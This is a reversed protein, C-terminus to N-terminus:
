KKPPDVGRPRPLVNAVSTGQLLRSLVDAVSEGGLIALPGMAEAMKETLARDSFAQLAAVLDPSIAGAKDVVARVEAALKALQQDLQGKAVDLDANSAARKRALEAQHIADLVSQEAM